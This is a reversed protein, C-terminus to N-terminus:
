DFDPSEEKNYLVVKSVWLDTSRLDGRDNKELLGKEIGKNISRFVTRSAMELFAALDEKTQTCWPYNPRHSLQHVSDIVAYDSFSLGFKKRIPHHVVTFRPALKFNRNVKTFSLKEMQLYKLKFGGRAKKCLHPYPSLYIPIIAIYMDFIYVTAIFM